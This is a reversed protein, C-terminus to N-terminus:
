KSTITIEEAKHRTLTERVEDEYNKDVNVAVLIDGAKVREEYRKAIEEDVGENVLAGLIGGTLAGVAAGAIGWTSMFPGAVLLAGIGPVTISTLGAVLGIIGGLAAGTVTGAAVESEDAAVEAVSDDKAVVSIDSSYGKDKLEEIAMKAHNKNKNTFIGTVM